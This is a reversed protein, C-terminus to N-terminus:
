LEAQTIRGDVRVERDGVAMPLLVYKSGSFLPRISAVLM